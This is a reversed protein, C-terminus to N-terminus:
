DRTVSCKVRQNGLGYGTTDQRIDLHSLGFDADIETLFIHLDRTLIQLTGFSGVLRPNAHLWRQNMKANKSTEVTKRKFVNECLM